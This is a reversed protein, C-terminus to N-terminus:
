SHYGIHPQEKAGGTSRNSESAKTKPTLNRLKVGIGSGLWGGGLGGVGVGWGWNGVVWGGLDKSGLHGAAGLETELSPLPVMVLVSVEELGGTAQVVAPRGTTPKFPTLAESQPGIDRRLQRRRPTRVTSM